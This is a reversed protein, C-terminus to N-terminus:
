KVERRPKWPNVTFGSDRNAFDNYAKRYEEPLIPIRYDVARHARLQEEAYELSMDAIYGDEIMCDYFFDGCAETKVYETMADWLKPMLDDMDGGYEVGFRDCLERAVPEVTEDDWSPIDELHKYLQDSDLDGSAVLKEGDDLGNVIEEVERETWPDRAALIEHGKVVFMM